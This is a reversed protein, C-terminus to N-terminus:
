SEITKNRRGRSERERKGGLTKEHYTVSGEDRRKWILIQLLMM